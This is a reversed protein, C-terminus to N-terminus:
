KHSHPHAAVLGSGPKGHTELDSVESALTTHSPLSLGLSHVAEALIKREPDNDPQQEYREEIEELTRCGARRLVRESIGLQDVVDVAALNAFHRDLAIGDGALEGVPAAERGVNGVIGIQDITEDVLAHLDMRGRGVVVHRRQKPM